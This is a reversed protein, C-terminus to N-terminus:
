LINCIEDFLDSNLRLLLLNQLNKDSLNTRLPSLILAMASFAREVTTQTPPVSHIICALEYLEPMLHINKQWYDHISISLNEKVGVFSNLVSKIDVATSNMTHHENENENHSNDNSDVNNYMESLFAELDDNSNLDENQNVDLVGSKARLLEKHKHLKSLFTIANQKNQQPMFKQYRPDLFVAANLVKNNFLVEERQKMNSLLAKALVDDGYKTLDMKIKAWNGFFDSLTYKENQSRKTENAFNSLISTIKEVAAWEETSLILEM